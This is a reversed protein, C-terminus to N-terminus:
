GSAQAANSYSIYERNGNPGEDAWEVSGIWWGSGHAGSQGQPPAYRTTDGASGSKTITFSGQWNGEPSCNDLLWTVSAQPTKTGCLWLMLNYGYVYNPYNIYITTPVDGCTWDAKEIVGGAGSSYHPNQMTISCGNPDTDPTVPVGSLTTTEATPEVAGDSAATGALASAAFLPTSGLVLSAGVLARFLQSAMHRFRERSDRPAM